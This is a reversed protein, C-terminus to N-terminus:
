LRSLFPLITVMNILVVHMYLMQIKQTLELCIKGWLIIIYCNEKFILGVQKKIQQSIFLHFTFVTRNHVHVGVMQVHVNEYHLHLIVCCHGAWIDGIVLLVGRQHFSLLGNPTAYQVIQDRPLGTVYKPANLQDCGQSLHIHM